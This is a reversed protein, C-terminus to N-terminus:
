RSLNGPDPALADAGAARELRLLGLVEGGREGQGQAGALRLQGSRWYDARLRGVLDADEAFREILIARAGDLAAEVDPVGRADSVYDAAVSAPARDPRSLLTQALPELGAERASQAKSRRKPRFPLYLDELRAKTDAADLAAALSPSMKGQATISAVIAARRENLDRLYSLREELRRLQTDDLGGTNEKRYRAIFPVTSGGDLLAVTAAVQAEGVGLEEAILANVAKM